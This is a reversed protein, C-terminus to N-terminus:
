KVLVLKSQENVISWYSFSDLFSKGLLFGIENEPIVAFTVNNLIFNGISVNSLLIRKCLVNEGNAMEYYISPLYNSKNLVGSTVLTKEFKLSIFSDSAGTDITFYKEIGGIKLQVKFSYGTNIIRISEANNTSNIEVKLTDGVSENLNLVSLCPLITENYLTSNEDEFEISDAVSIDLYKINDYFCECFSLLDLDQPLEEFLSLTKLESVCDRIEKTVYNEREKKVFKGDIVEYDNIGFDKMLQILDEKLSHRPVPITTESALHPFDKQVDIGKGELFYWQHGNDFSIGIYFTNFVDVLKGVSMIQDIPVIAVIANGEEVIEGIQGIVTKIITVEVEELSKKISEAMKEKGGFRNVASPLFFEIAERYNGDQWFGVMAKLQQSLRTKRQDLPSLANIFDSENEFLYYVSNNILFNFLSRRKSINEMAIVFDNINDDLLPVDNFKLFNFLKLQEYTPSQQNLLFSDDRNKINENINEWEKRSIISPHAWLVEEIIIIDTSKLKNKEELSLNYLENEFEKDADYHIPKSNDWQPFSNNQAKIHFPLYLITILFITRLFSTSSYNM